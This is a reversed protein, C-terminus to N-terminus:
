DKIIAIIEPLLTIATLLLINNKQKPAEATPLDNPIASTYSIEANPNRIMVVSNIAEEEFNEKVYDYAFAIGDSNIKDLHAKFDTTTNLIKKLESPATKELLLGNMGAYAVISIHDTERLRKELFKFAQKLILADEVSPNRSATEILFTINRSIIEDENYDVHDENLQKPYTNAIFSIFNELTISETQIHQNQATSLGNVMFVLVLTFLAKM